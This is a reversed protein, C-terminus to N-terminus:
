ETRQGSFSTTRRQDALFAPNPYQRLPEPVIQTTIGRVVMTGGCGGKGPVGSPGVREWGASCIWAASWQAGGSEPACRRPQWAASPARSSGRRPTAAANGIRMMADTQGIMSMNRRMHPTHPEQHRKRALRVSIGASDPHSEERHHLACMREGRAPTSTLHLPYM